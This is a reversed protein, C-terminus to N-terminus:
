RRVSMDGTAGLAQAATRLQCLAQAMVDATRSRLCAEGKVLILILISRLQRCVRVRFPAASAIALAFRCAEHGEHPAMDDNQQIM